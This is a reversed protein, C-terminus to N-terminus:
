CKFMIDDVFVMRTQNGLADVVRVVNGRTDYEYTTPNGLVDKVTQLSNAPDYDIEISNGTANLTKKLRGDDGYEVKAGTRNLPDIIEKLYHPQNTYYVFRTEFQEQDKVSVLDGNADYTYRILEGMPDKVSAIRGQADRDFTVQKGASSYIGDDTYTLKNGNTDTVTLLDGTQADIEYVVGEKTTLM